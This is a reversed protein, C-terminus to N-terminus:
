GKIPHRRGVRGGLLLAPCVHNLTRTASLTYASLLHAIDSHPTLHYARQYWEMLLEPGTRGRGGGPSALHLRPAQGLITVAGM